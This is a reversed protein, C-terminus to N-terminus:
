NGLLNQEASYDSYSIFNEDPIFLNLSHPLGNYWEKLDNFGYVRSRMSAPLYEVPSLYKGSSLYEPTILGDVHDHALFLTNNSMSM